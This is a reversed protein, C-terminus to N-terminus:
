SLLYRDQWSVAKEVRVLEIKLIHGPGRLYYVVMGVSQSANKPSDAGLWRSEFAYRPAHKGLALEDASVKVGGKGLNHCVDLDQFVHTVQIDCVAM